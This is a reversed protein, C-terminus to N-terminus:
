LAAQVARQIEDVGAAGELRAAVRGRRDIAFLWPESPLHWALVEPRFGDQLRNNRYIEMHIFAARNGIRAKVQEVEDVLPGCTRSQCLAPTAFVLVTPKRGVVDAFDVSHMDDPPVRTDIKSLDGGV